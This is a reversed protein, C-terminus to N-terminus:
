QPGPVPTQQALLAIQEQMYAYATQRVDAEMKPAPEEDHLSHINYQQAYATPVNEDLTLGACRATVQTWLRAVTQLNYGGGGTVVLPLGECLQLLKDVAQIWGRSTLMLRTLPDDFHADAGLQLVVADPKFRGLAEPVVADFGEHWTADETFPYYPLNVSTGMGAGDGREDPFGTGPYFRFLGAQHLSVTLVTPDDYFCAQVGDGHHADIDIYAVRKYGADQLTYVGTALDNFTCFGSAHDPHAHHLGGAVNFAAGFEGSAVLKAAQVTGGAYLAAADYMGAFAPTDGPGLGYRGLYLRDTEGTGARKVAEVYDGTHVRLIDADTARVPLLPVIPKDNGLVGYAKLLREVMQLRRQQLPHRPGLNYTLFEDSYIFATRRPTTM